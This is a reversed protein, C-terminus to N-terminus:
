KIQIPYLKEGIKISQGDDQVESLLAFRPNKGLQIVGNEATSCFLQEKKDLFFTDLLLQDQKGNNLLLEVWDEGELVIQTGIIPTTECDLYCKDWRKDVWYEIYYLETEKEYHLNELFLSQVKSIIEQGKWSWKQGTDVAILQYYFKDCVSASFEGTKKKEQVIPTPFYIGKKLTQIQNPLYENIFSQVDSDNWFSSNEIAELQSAVLPNHFRQKHLFFVYIQHKALQQLIELTEMNM